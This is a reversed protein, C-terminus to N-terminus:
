FLSMKSYVLEESKICYGWLVTALAVHIRVVAEEIRAHLFLRWRQM